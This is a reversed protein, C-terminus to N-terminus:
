VSAAQARYAITIRELETLHELEHVATHHAIVRISMTGAEELVGVSEWEAATLTRLIGVIEARGAAYRRLQVAISLKARAAVVALLREDIMTLPAEPRTLILLMRPVLIRDAAMIHDILVRGSWEDTAKSWVLGTPGLMAVIAQLRDPVDALTAIIEPDSMM